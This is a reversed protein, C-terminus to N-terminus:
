YDEFLEEIAKYNIKNSYSRCMLMNIAHAAPTATIEKSNSDRPKDRKRKKATKIIGNRLDTEKNLHKVIIDMNATGHCENPPSPLNLFFLLFPFIKCEQERLYDKNLEV